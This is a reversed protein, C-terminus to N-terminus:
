DEMQGELCLQVADLSDQYLQTIFLIVVTILCIFNLRLMKQTHWQKHSHAYWIAVQEVVNSYIKRKM